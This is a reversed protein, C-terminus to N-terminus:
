RLTSLQAGQFDFAGCASKGPAASIPETTPDSFALLVRRARDSASNKQLEEIAKELASLRFDAEGDAREVRDLFAALDILKARAEIFYLDLIEQRTM